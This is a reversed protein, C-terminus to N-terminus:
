LQAVGDEDTVVATKALAVLKGAEKHQQEAAMLQEAELSQQVILWDNESWSAKINEILNLLDSANLPTPVGMMTLAKRLLPTVLSSENRWDVVDLHAPPAYPNLKTLQTVQVEADSGTAPPYEDETPEAPAEGLVAAMVEPTVPVSFEHGSATRLLLSNTSTGTVLDYSSDVRLIHLVDQTM